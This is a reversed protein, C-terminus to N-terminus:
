AKPVPISNEYTWEGKYYVEAKKDATQFHWNQTWGKGPAEAGCFYAKASSVTAGVAEVGSPIVLWEIATQQFASAGLYKLSSPLKIAALSACSVFANAEVSQLGDPLTVERLSLCGAFASDGISRLTSPLKVEALAKCGMFAYPPLSRLGEPLIVKKLMRCEKAKGVATVGVRYELEELNAPLGTLATLNSATVLKKLSICDEFTDTTAHSRDFVVSKGIVLSELKTMGRLAFASMNETGDRIVLETADPDVALLFNGIYLGGDEYLAKNKVLGSDTFAGYSFLPKERGEELIVDALSPTVVFAEGLGEVGCGLYVKKLAACHKFGEVTMGGQLYVEELATAGNFFTPAFSTISSPLYIKKVLDDKEFGAAYVVPKGEYRAPVIVVEDTCSGLGVLAYGGRDDHYVLELGQSPKVGCGRCRGKVVDHSCTERDACSSFLLIVTLLLLFICVTKKM